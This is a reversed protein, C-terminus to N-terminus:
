NIENMKMYALIYVVESSASNSLNSFSNLKAPSVKEDNFKIWIDEGNNLSSLNRSLAYYHGYEASRGSHIIIGYLVYKENKITGDEVVPLNLIEPYSVHDLIKHRKLSKVDFYFRSLTLLLYNPSKIINTVRKANCLSNCKECFYQNEGELIEPSLYYEVLDTVNLNKRDSPFSLSLDIFSENKSSTENCLSCTITTSLKGEFFLQHLVIVQYKRIHNM